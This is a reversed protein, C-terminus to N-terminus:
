RRRTLRGGDRLLAGFDRAGHIFALVQVQDDLVEYILRYSFVFIERVKDDSVEPVIRGRLSLLQLSDAADLVVDLVRAAAAPSDEAIFKLADNLGERAGPTWDVRRSREAM